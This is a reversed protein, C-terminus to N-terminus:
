ARPHAQKYVSKLRSMSNHTYVQTVSLSAHGLLEKIANLDAGQNLLHTAFSHRLVHPSQKQLTSVGSLFRNVLRYVWKAYVPKGNDLLFFFTAEMDPFKSKRLSVYFEMEKCLDDTLPIMREKSRKGFIRVQRSQWDFDHDSLQLLESLRIGTGYLLYLVARDRVQSYDDQDPKQSLMDTMEEMRVFGPLRKATKMSPVESAPNKRVVGTKLLFRYFARLTAIKRNVSRPSYGREVLSVLWERIQKATVREEDFIGSDSLFTDFQLLDTQYSIVTHVSFRKEYKLYDLYSILSKM